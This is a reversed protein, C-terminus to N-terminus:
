HHSAGNRESVRLGIKEPTERFSIVGRSCTAGLFPDNSVLLNGDIDLHDALEALHAAATILISSEIMCGIMTKLGARRAAQLADFAGSIGATKVLKVNVGHYCQVCRDADVAHHYSEDGFLPLPSRAKLWALDDVPTAAPMPQEVFEIHGDQALWEIERLAEEKTKWAENADVRVTKTPAAERLAALNVRDQPSGLKMKLVPFEAAEAVKQRVMDPSDIGISFSTLHEGETFGLGLTDYIPKGALRASGDMLAINVATKAAPNGPAVTDLYRMSGEVDNFSLRAPDVTHLFREVTEVDERYRWSPSSEGLGRLGSADILEIFVVPYTGSGGEDSRAIRWAHKLQLDFRRIEIKVTRPIGFRTRFPLSISGVPREAFASSGLGCPYPADTGLAGDPQGPTTRPASPCVRGVWGPHREM